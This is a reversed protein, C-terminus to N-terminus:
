ASPLKELEEKFPPYIDTILVSINEGAETIVEAHGTQHNVCRVTGCEFWSKMTSRIFISCEQDTQLNKRFRYREVFMELAIFLTLGVLAVFIFGVVIAFVLMPSSLVVNLM